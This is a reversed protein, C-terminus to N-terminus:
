FQGLVTNKSKNLEKFVVMLNYLYSLQSMKALANVRFPWLLIKKFTNIFNLPYQM